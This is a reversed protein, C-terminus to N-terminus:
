FRGPGLSGDSELPFILVVYYKPDTVYLHRTFDVNARWSTVLNPAVNQALNQGSIPGPKKPDSFVTYLEVPVSLATYLEM